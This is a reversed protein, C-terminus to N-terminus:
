GLPVLRLRQGPVILNPDDGIVDRNADYLLRWARDVAAATAGPGLRAAAIDWLCDGPVVVHEGASGGDRLLGPVATREVPGALPRPAAPIPPLVVATDLPGPPRPRRGDDIPSTPEAGAAPTPFRGLLSAAALLGIQGIQLHARPARPRSGAGDARRRRPGPAPATPGAAGALLGALLGAVLLGGVGLVVALALRGLLGDATTGPGVLQDAVSGLIRAVPDRVPQTAPTASLLLVATLAWLRPRASGTM